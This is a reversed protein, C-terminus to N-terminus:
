IIGEIMDLSDMDEKEIFEQILEAKAIKWYEKTTYSRNIAWEERDYAKEPFDVIWLDLSREKIRDKIKQYDLDYDEYSLYLDSLKKDNLKKFLDSINQDLWRADELTNLFHAIIEREKNNM